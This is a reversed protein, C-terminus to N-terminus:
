ASIAGNALGLMALRSFVALIWILFPVGMSWFVMHWYGIQKKRYPATAHAFSWFFLPAAIVWFFVLPHGFQDAAQGGYLFAIPFLWAPAFSRWHM